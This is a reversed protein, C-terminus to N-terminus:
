FIDVNFSSTIEILRDRYTYIYSMFYFVRELKGLLFPKDPCHHSVEPVWKNIVNKLSKKNSTDFCILAIDM